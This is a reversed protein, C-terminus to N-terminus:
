AQKLAFANTASEADIGRNLPLAQCFLLTRDFLPSWRFIISRRQRSASAVITQAPRVLGAAESGDAKGSEGSCRRAISVTM